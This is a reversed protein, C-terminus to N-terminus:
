LEEQKSSVGDEKLRALASVFLKMKADDQLVYSHKKVFNGIDRISHLKNKRKIKKGNRKRVVKTSKMLLPSSGKTILYAKPHLDYESVGPFQAPDAYNEVVVM